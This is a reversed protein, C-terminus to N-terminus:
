WLWSHHSLIQRAQTRPPRRGEATTQHGHPCWLVAKSGTEGGDGLLSRYLVCHTHHVSYVICQIYTRISMCVSILIMEIGSNPQTSWFCTQSIHFSGKSSTNVHIYLPGKRLWCMCWLPHFSLRTHELICATAGPLPLTCSAM